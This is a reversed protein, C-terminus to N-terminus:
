PGDILQELKHRLEAPSYPKPFYANAGLRALREPTRPDSDGSIVLIPLQSRRPQSRIVEILEFGDMRPLHIDTVLACAESSALWQLAEEATAVSRFVLDPVQMLALELADRGVETDEVILVTRSM